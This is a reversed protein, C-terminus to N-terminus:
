MLSLYWGSDIAMYYLICRFSLNHSEWAIRHSCTLALLSFVDNPPSKGQVQKTTDHRHTDVRWRGEREGTLTLVLVLM